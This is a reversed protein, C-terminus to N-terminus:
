KARPKLAKAVQVGLPTLVCGGVQGKGAEYLGYKRLTDMARRVKGDTLDCTEEIDTYTAGPSNQGSILGEDHLSRLIKRPNPKSRLIKVIDTVATATEAPVAPVIRGAIVDLADAVVEAMRKSGFQTDSVHPEPQGWFDEGSPPVTARVAAAVAAVPDNEHQRLFGRAAAPLSSPNSLIVEGAALVADCVARRHHDLAFQLHFMRTAPDVEYFVVADSHQRLDNAIGRLEVASDM